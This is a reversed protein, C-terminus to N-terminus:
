RAAAQHHGSYDSLWLHILRRALYVEGMGGRGIERIVEYNGIRRGIM